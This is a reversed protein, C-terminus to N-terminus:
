FNALVPFRYNELINSVGNGIANMAYSRMDEAPVNRVAELTSATATTVTVFPIGYFRQASTSNTPKIPINRLANARVLASEDLEDDAVTTSAFLATGTVGIQFSPAPMHHGKDRVEQLHELWDRSIGEVYIQSLKQRQLFKQKALLVKQDVVEQTDGARPMLDRAWPAALMTGVAVARDNTASPVTRKGDSRLATTLISHEGITESHQGVAFTEDDIIGVLQQRYGYQDLLVQAGQVHDGDEDVWWLQNQEVRQHTVPIVTGLKAMKRENLDARRYRFAVIKQETIPTGNTRKTRAIPQQVPDLYYLMDKMEIRM